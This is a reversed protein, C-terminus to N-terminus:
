SWISSLSHRSIQLVKSGGIKGIKLWVLIELLYGCGHLL